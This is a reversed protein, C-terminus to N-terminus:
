YSWHKRRHELNAAVLRANITKDKNFVGLVSCLRPWSNWMWDLEAEDMQQVTGSFNISDLQTLTSLTELGGVSAGGDGGADKSRLRLDLGHVLPSAGTLSVLQLKELKTLRALQRFTHEQELARQKNMRAVNEEKSNKIFFGAGSLDFNLYLTKLGLCVWDDGVLTGTGTGMYTLVSLDYEYDPVTFDVEDTETGEKTPAGYRVLDTGRLVHAVFVELGPCNTLLIQIEKSGISFCLLNLSRLTAAHRTMLVQFSKPGFDCWNLNIDRGDTMRELLDEIRDDSLEQIQIDVDRFFAFTKLRPLIRPLIEYPFSSQGLAWQWSRLLPAQAMIRLGDEVGTIRLTQLRSFFAVATEEKTPNLYPITTQTLNSSVSLSSDLLTSPLSSPSSSESLESSEPSSSSSSSAAPKQVFLPTKLPPLFEEGKPLKLRLLHLTQTKSCALWFAQVDPPHIVCNTVQLSSLSPSAALANWFGTSSICPQDLLQVHVLGLNRLILETVTSSFGDAVASSDGGGNRVTELDPNKKVKAVVSCSRYLFPTFSEHWGRCVATAIGLQPTDLFSALHDRIEPIDFAFM